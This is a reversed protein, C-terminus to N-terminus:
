HLRALALCAGPKANLSKASTPAPPAFTNLLRCHGATRREMMSILGRVHDSSFSVWSLEDRPESFAAIFYLSVAAEPVGRRVLEGALDLAAPSRRDQLVNCLLRSRFDSIKAGPDEGLLGRRVVALDLQSLFEAAGDIFGHTDETRAGPGLGAEISDAWAVIRQVDTDVAFSKLAPGVGNRCLNFDGCRDVLLQLLEDKVEEGKLEVLRSVGVAGMLDGLAILALLHVEHVDGIPLGFAM